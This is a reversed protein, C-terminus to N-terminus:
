RNGHEDDAVEVVRGIAAGDGKKLFLFELVGEGFEIAGEGCPDPAGAEKGEASAHVVDKVRGFKLAVSSGDRRDAIGIM